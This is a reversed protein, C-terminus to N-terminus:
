DRTENRRHQQQAIEDFQKQEKMAQTHRQRFVMKEDLKTLTKRELQKQHWIQTAIDLNKKEIAVNGSQKDILAHLKGIFHNFNNIKEIRVGESATGMFSKKYDTEYQRLEDLLRLQKQYAAQCETYKQAAKREEDLYIAIIKDINKM